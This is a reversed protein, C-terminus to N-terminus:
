IKKARRRPKKKSIKSRVEELTQAMTAKFTEAAPADHVLVAMLEDFMPKFEQYLPQNVVTEATIEPASVGSDSPPPLPPHGWHRRCMSRKGGDVYFGVDDVALNFGMGCKSANDMPKTTGRRRPGSTRDLARWVPKVLSSEVGPSAQYKRARPCAIRKRQAASAVIALNYGSYRASFRLASLLNNFAEGSLGDAPPYTVPCFYVKTGVYEPGSYDFVNRLIFTSPIHPLASCVFFLCADWEEEQTTTATNVQQLVNSPGHRSFHRHQHV